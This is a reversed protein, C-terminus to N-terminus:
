SRAEEATQRAQVEGHMPDPDTLEWGFDIAWAHVQTMVDGMEGVDLESTSKPIVRYVGFAFAEKRPYFQDKIVDKVEGPSHGSQESIEHIWMHLTNNQPLTRPKRYPELTLRFIKDEAMAEAIARLANDLVEPTRLVWSRKATM